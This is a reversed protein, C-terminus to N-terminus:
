KSKASPSAPPTSSGAAPARRKMPVPTGPEVRLLELEYVILAGPPVPPPSNAGYGLEPPVFLQWKAGPKMAAFAEQWGKFVSNVQFKPPRDHTDSRDFVSGDALSAVYRVTVQDTPHPVTGNPDGDALIRYQLGSPLTQIGPQKANKELFERAAARNRDAIADRTTRMFKLAAEREETTTAKGALGEKLGAIVAEVSIVADMGNHHLQEGLMLGVDRSAVEPSVAPAAPAAPAPAPADGPGGAIQGGWATPALLGGLALRVAFRVVSKRSSPM